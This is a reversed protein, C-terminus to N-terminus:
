QGVSMQKVKENFLQHILKPTAMGNRLNYKSDKPRTQTAHSWLLLICVSRYAKLKAYM